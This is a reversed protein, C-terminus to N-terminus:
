MHSGGLCTQFVFHSDEAKRKRTRWCPPFGSLPFLMEIYVCSPINITVAMDTTRGLQNCIYYDHFLVNVCGYALFMDFCVLLYFIPPWWHISFGGRPLLGSTIDLEIELSLFLTVKICITNFFLCSQFNNWTM